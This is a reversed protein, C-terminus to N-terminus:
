MTGESPYHFVFPYVSSSREAGTTVWCHGSYHWDNESFGDAKMTGFHLTADIGRTRLLYCIVTSRYFCADRFRLIARISFWVSCYHQLKRSTGAEDEIERLSCVPNLVTHYGQRRHLSVLILTKVVQFHILPNSYYRIKEILSRRSSNM